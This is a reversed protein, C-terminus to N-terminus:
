RGYGNRRFDTSSRPRARQLGGGVHEEVIEIWSAIADRRAGFIPILFIKIDIPVTFHNLAELPKPKM